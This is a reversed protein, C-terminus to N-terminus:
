PFTILHKYLVETDKDKGKYGYSMANGYHTYTFMIVLM